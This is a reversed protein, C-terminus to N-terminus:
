DIHWDIFEQLALAGENIHVGKMSTQIKNKTKLTIAIKFQKTTTMHQIQIIQVRRDM